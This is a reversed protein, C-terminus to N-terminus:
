NVFRARETDSEDLETPKAANETRSQYLVASQWVGMMEAMEWVTM